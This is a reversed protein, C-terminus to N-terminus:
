GRWLQLPTRDRQGDFPVSVEAGGQGASAYAACVIDLVTRGFAADITPSRGARLDDTFSRLQGLYGYSEIQGIPASLPPLAVPEGDHELSPVPQIEARLVGTASAAQADWVSGPGAAWSSVVRGALGSAFRLTVEAHEDTPHDDAGQLHASVAVVPDPTTLLLAVALAHVGLDFLAGGGWEATLFDGWTPRGQLSRVELHQLPGLSGVRRVMEAVVPAFALNEAYLLRGGAAEVLADADALTTCLPKELLVAAGAHLAALAHAAHLAPPTSVIVVDAGAPLEDYTVVRAGLEAARESARQASRSAVAVVPLGLQQAAVVHAGSIMGAGCLALRM